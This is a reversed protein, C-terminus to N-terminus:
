GPYEAHQPLPDAIEFWPAKSAVFIHRMDAPAIATDLSAAPIVARDPRVAPMASGCTVCFAQTFRAAEPLRYSSLELEGRVFAFRAIDVFTNTTHAAARAKRCRSCHCNYFTWAGPGVWFAVRGCLCSGTAAGDSSAAAGDSGDATAARLPAVSSMSWDTPYEAHQPLDDTIAYWPAKSAVFIHLSPRAGPDGDLCGAPMYVSRGEPKDPVVSGCRGCFCRWHEASSRYRTLTETGSTFRFGDAKAGVYTAFPAGHAKRCMGCHCHTMNFLPGHAEWSVAHCLCSGRVIESSAM